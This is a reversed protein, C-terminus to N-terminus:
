VVIVVRHRDVKKGEDLVEELTEWLIELVWQVDAAVAISTYVGREQCKLDM